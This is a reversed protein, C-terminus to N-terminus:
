LAKKHLSYFNFQFEHNNHLVCKHYYIESSLPIDIIKSTRVMLMSTKQHSWGHYCHNMSSKGLKSFWLSMNWLKIVHTNLGKFFPKADTKQVSQQNMNIGECLSIRPSINQIVGPTRRPHSKKSKTIVTLSTSSPSQHSLNITPYYRQNTSFMEGQIRAFADCCAESSEEQQLFIVM